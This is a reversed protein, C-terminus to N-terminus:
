KPQQQQQQPAVKKLQSAKEVNKTTMGNNSGTEIFMNSVLCLTLIFIGLGWTVKELVDGTRKVGMVQTAGGGMQSVGGGKSNQMLVAFVLMVVAIIILVIIFIFM